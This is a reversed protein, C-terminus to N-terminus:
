GVQAGLDATMQFRRIEQIEAAGAEEPAVEEERAAGSGNPGTSTTTFLQREEGVVILNLESNEDKTMIAPYTKLEPGLPCWKRRPM